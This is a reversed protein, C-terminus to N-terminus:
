WGLWHYGYHIGDFESISFRHHWLVLKGESDTNKKYKLVEDNKFEDEIPAYYVYLGERKVEEQELERIWMYCKTEKIVKYYSVFAGVQEKLIM